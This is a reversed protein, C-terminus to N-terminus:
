STHSYVYVISLCIIIIGRNEQQGAHVINLVILTHLIHVIACNCVIFTMVLIYVIACKLVIIALLVSNYM